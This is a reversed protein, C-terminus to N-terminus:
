ARGARRVANGRSPYLLSLCGRRRVAVAGCARERIHARAAAAEKPHLPLVWMDLYLDGSLDKGIRTVDVGEPLYRFLSPDIEEPLGLHM